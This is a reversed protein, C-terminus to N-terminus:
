AAERRRARLRFREEAIRDVERMAEHYEGMRKEARARVARQIARRQRRDFDEFPDFEMGIIPASAMQVEDRM